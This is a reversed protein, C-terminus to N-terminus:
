DEVEIASCVEDLCRRESDVACEFHGYVCPTDPHADQFAQHHELVADIAHSM